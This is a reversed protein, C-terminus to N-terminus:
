PKVARVVRGINSKSLGSGAAIERISYGLEYYAEIILAGPDCDSGCFLTELSKRRPAPEAACAPPPFEIFEDIFEVFAARAARDSSGLLSLLTGPDLFRCVPTGRATQRYSSWPWSAPHSVFGARVPNLVIYSNVAFFYMENDIVRSFFRAEFLHGKRAHRRNFKRAYESNLRQMGHSLNENRIEIVLHYHNKMLCYSHCKWDHRSIV